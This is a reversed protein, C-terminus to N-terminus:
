MHFLLSLHSLFFLNSWQYSRQRREKKYKDKRKKQIQAQEQERSEDERRESKKKDELIVTEDEYRRFM